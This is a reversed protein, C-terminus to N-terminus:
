NWFMRKKMTVTQTAATILFVQFNVKAPLLYADCSHFYNRSFNEHFIATFSSVGLVFCIKTMNLFTENSTIGPIWCPM